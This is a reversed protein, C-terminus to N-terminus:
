GARRLVLWGGIVGGVAKLGHALLYAPRMSSELDFDAVAGQMILTLAVYLGIGWLGAVFGNFVPATTGRGCWYGAPVFLILAAPPIVLDLVPEAGAEGLSGYLAVTAAILVIEVAIAAILPRGWRLRPVAVEPNSAM